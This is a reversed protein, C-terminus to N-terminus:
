ASAEFEQVLRCDQYGSHGRVAESMGGSREQDFLSHIDAEDLSKEPVCTNCGCFNVGADRVGSKHSGYVIGIRQPFHEGLECLESNHM